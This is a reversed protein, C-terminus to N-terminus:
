QIYPTVKIEISVKRKRNHTVIQNMFPERTERESTIMHTTKVDTQNDLETTELTTEMGGGGWRGKGRRLRQFTGAPLQSTCQLYRANASIRPDM